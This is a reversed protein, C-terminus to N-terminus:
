RFPEPHDSRECEETDDTEECGAAASTPLLGGTGSRGAPLRDPDAEVVAAEVVQGEHAKLAGFAVEADLLADILRLRRLLVDRVQGCKRAVSVVQRDADAEGLRRRDVRRRRVEGLRLEGDDVDVLRLLGVLRGVQEPQEEALLLRAVEDTVEGPELLIPQGARVHDARDAPLLLRRDVAEDGAILRTCLGGIGPDLEQVAVGLVEGVLRLALLDRQVLDFLAGAHDELNGATTPEAGEVRRLLLADPSDPHVGVLREQARVDQRTRHLADIGRHEERDLADDVSLEFAAVDDEAQLVVADADALDAGLNGLGLDRRHVLDARVDDAPLDLVNRGLHRLPKRSHPSSRASTSRAEPTAVARATTRPSTRTARPTCRPKSSRQRTRRFGSGSRSSRPTRFRTASRLAKTRSAAYTSPSTRSRIPPGARRSSATVAIAATSAASTSRTSTGFREVPKRPSIPTTPRGARRTSSCAAPRATRTSSARCSARAACASRGAPSTARSRPSVTRSASATRAAPSASRQSLASSSSSQRSSGCRRLIPM